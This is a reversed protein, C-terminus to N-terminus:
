FNMKIIDGISALEPFVQFKNIGLLGLERKIEVKKAKPIIYKIIHSKDGINEIPTEDRHSITFVGLQAQMRANNRSAIAALPLLKTNPDQNLTEPDYNKLVLDDFSPIYFHEDSYIKSHKNLETPFLMWLAGDKKSHKVDDVAFYLATLPSETWDLLRTPVGYHQMQFLWDFYSSPPRNILLSANQKFRSLITFESAKKKKRMFSPQLPWTALSHGRYWVQGSYKATDDKLNTLLDSISQVKKSKNSM